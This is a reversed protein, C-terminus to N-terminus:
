PAMGPKPVQPAPAPLDAPGPAPPPLLAAPPKGLSLIDEPNIDDPNIGATTMEWLLRLLNVKPDFDENLIDLQKLRLLFDERSLDGAKRAAILTQLVAQDTEDPGFDTVIEATGGDDLGMWEATLKLAVNITDVFRTTMDQLPSMAEATDLARATATQAGPAKRLFQAGYAAMKQEIDALDNAGAEISKGTHEVYYFKGNPDKTGLLQRPGIAMTAGSQDTAGAVALMPFRAVTLVNIQDATSQWHRVNLYALDEIPPKGTMFGERNAYFTILPVINLSTTGKQISVWQPKKEDQVVQLEFLEYTGPELVRIRQKVVEAFGVREVVDEKIRVHTLTEVGNIFESSAFIVDEPRVLCWYPRRNDALDDARTRAQAEEPSLTPMDVLIHCFAKALSERFWHRCFTSINNGQLDINKALDVITDPVDDKLRVPESFPKGVLSDLTLETMNFLTCRQLREGYNSGSEEEHQPLYEQAAERMAATGSLLTSIMQWKPAMVSYAMSETSPDRIADDQKQKASKAM